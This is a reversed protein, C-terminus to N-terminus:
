RTLGLWLWALTTIAPIGWLTANGWFLTGALGSDRSRSDGGLLPMPLDTKERIVRELESRTILLRKLVRKAALISPTMTLTITLGLVAAVGPLGSVHNGTAVVYAGFLFAQATMFSGFRQGILTIEHGIKTENLVALPTLQDMDLQEYKKAKGGSIVELGDDRSTQDTPVPQPALTKQSM